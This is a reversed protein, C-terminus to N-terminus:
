NDETKRLRKGPPALTSKAGDPASAAGSDEPGVGIIPSILTMRAGQRSANNVVDVYVRVTSLACQTPTRFTLSTEIRLTHKSAADVYVRATSFACQTHTYPLDSVIRHAFDCRCWAGPVYKLTAQHM